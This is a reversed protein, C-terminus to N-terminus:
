IFNLRHPTNYHINEILFDYILFKTEKYELSRKMASRGNFTIKEINTSKGLREEITKSLSIMENLTNFDEGAVLIRLEVGSTPSLFAVKGRPDNPYEQIRWLAPPVITFFNKPDIYRKDSLTDSAGSVSTSLLISSLLFATLCNLLKIM